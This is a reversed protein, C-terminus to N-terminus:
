APSKSPTRTALCEWLCTTDMPQTLDFAADQADVITRPTTEPILGQDVLNYKMVHNDRPRLPKLHGSLVDASAITM